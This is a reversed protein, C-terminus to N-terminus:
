RLEWFQRGFHVLPKGSPVEVGIVDGVVIRHDGGPHVASVLCEAFGIAGAILPLGSELMRHEVGVFKDPGRGAFRLAIDRQDQGLINICFRRSEMLPELSTSRADICIILQLPDLSLSTVASMTLGFPRGAADITTVVAVGTAWHGALSRFAAADCPALRPRANLRTESM